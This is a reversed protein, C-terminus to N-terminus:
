DKGFKELFLTYGNPTQVSMEWSDMAEWYQAPQTYPIGHAECVAIVDKFSSTEMQWVFKGALQAADFGAREKLGFEVVGSRLGIFGPFEDGQYSIEFGLRQYFAVEPSLDRVYLIPVMRPFQPQTSSM